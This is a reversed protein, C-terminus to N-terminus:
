ANLSNTDGKNVTSYNHVVSSVRSGYLYRWDIFISIRVTISRPYYTIENAYQYHFGHNGFYNTMLLVLFKHILIGIKYCKRFRSKPVYM